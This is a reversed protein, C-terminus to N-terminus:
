VRIAQEKKPQLVDDDTDLDVSYTENADHISSFLGFYFIGYYQQMLCPGHM